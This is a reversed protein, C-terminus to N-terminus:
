GRPAVLQRNLEQRQLMQWASAAGQGWGARPPRDAAAAPRRPLDRGAPRETSKTADM